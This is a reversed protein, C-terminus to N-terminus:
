RLLRCRREPAGPGTTIRVEGQHEAYVWGGGAYRIGSGTQEQYLTITDDGRRAVASAPETGFFILLVPQSDAGGCTFSRPATGPVLAYVALLEAVRRRGSTALCARVDAQKACAARGRQWQQQDARPSPLGWRATQAEALSYVYALRAELNTLDRDQCILVDVSGPAARACDISPAIPPAAPAAAMAGGQAALLLTCWLWAALGRLRTATPM